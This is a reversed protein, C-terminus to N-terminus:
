ALVRSKPEIHPPPALDVRVAHDDARNFSIIGSRHEFESVM